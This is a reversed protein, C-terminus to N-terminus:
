EDCARVGTVTVRVQDPKCAPTPSVESTDGFYCDTAAGLFNKIVGTSVATSGPCAAKYYVDICSVEEPKIRPRRGIIYHKGAGDPCHLAGLKIGREMASIYDTKRQREAREEREKEAKKRAAEAEEARKREISERQEKLRREEEIRKRERELEEQRRKREREQEAAEEKKRTQSETEERRHEAATRQENKTSASKKAAERKAARDDEARQSDARERERTRKDRNLESNPDDEQKHIAIAFETARRAKEEEAEVTTGRTAADFRKKEMALRGPLRALENTIGQIWLRSEAAARRNAEESGQMRGQSAEVRRFERAIDANGSQIHNQVTVLSSRYHQLVRGKEAHTLLKYVPVLTDMSQKSVSEAYTNVCANFKNAISRAQNWNNRARSPNEHDDYRDPFDRLLTNCQYGLAEPEFGNELAQVIQTKQQARQKHSFSYSKEDFDELKFILELHYRMMNSALLGPRARTGPLYGFDLVCKRLLAETPVHDPAGFFAPFADKGQVEKQQVYHQELQQCVPKVEAYETAPRPGELLQYAVGDPSGERLARQAYQKCEAEHCTALKLIAPLYGLDAANRQLDVAAEKKLPSREQAYFRALEFMAQADGAAVGKRYWNMAESKLDAAGHDDYIQGIFVMAATNGATAAKEYWDLAQKRNPKLEGAGHQLALGLMVAAAADGSAAAKRLQDLHLNFAAADLKWARVEYRNVLLSRARYGNRAASRELVNLAALQSGKELLDVARQYEARVEDGNGLGSAAVAVSAQSYALLAVSLYLASRLSALSPIHRNMM